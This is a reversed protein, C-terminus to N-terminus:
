LSGLKKQHTTTSTTSISHVLLLLPKWAPPRVLQELLLRFSNEKVTSSVYLVLWDVFGFNDRSCDNIIDTVICLLQNM